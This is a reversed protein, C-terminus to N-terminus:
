PAKKKRRLTKLQAVYSDGRKKNLERPESLFDYFDNDYDAGPTDQVSASESEHLRNEPSLSDSSHDRTGAKDATVFFDEYYDDNYEYDQSEAQDQPANRLLDGLTQSKANTSKASSQFSDYFENDYDYLPTDEQTDHASTPVSEQQLLDSSLNHDTAKAEPLLTPRWRQLLVSM